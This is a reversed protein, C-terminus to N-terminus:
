NTAHSENVTNPFWFQKTPTVQSPHKCYPEEYRPVYFKVCDPKTTAVRILRGDCVYKGRGLNQIERKYDLSEEESCHLPARKPPLERKVGKNVPVIGPKRGAKGPAKAHRTVVGDQEVTHFSHSPNGLCFYKRVRMGSQNLRSDRCIADAGCECVLNKM